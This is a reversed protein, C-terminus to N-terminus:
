ENGNGEKRQVSLLVLGLTYLQQLIGQLAAQDIIGGELTTIAWGDEGAVSIQLGTFSGLWRRSIQGQVRIEYEAPQDLSFRTHPATM